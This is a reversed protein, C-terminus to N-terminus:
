IQKNQSNLAAFVEGFGHPWAFRVVDLLPVDAAGKRTWRDVAECIVHAGRATAMKEAQKRAYYDQKSSAVECFIGVVVYGHKDAYQKCCEIQRQLGHGSAQPWTSVRAYIIAEKYKM